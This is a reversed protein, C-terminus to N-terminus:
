STRRGRRRTERRQVLHTTRKGTSEASTRPADDDERQEGCEYSGRRRKKMSVDGDSSPPADDEEGSGRCEDAAPRRRGWTKWVGVRRTTKSRVDGASRRSGGGEAEEERVDEEDEV